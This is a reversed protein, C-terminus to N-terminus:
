ESDKSKGQKGKKYLKGQMGGSHFGTDVGSGNAGCVIYVSQYEVGETKNKLPWFYWTYVGRTAWSKSGQHQRIAYNVAM